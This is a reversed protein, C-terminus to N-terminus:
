GEDPLTEDIPVFDTIVTITPKRGRVARAKMQTAVYRRRAKTEPVKYNDGKQLIPRTEPMSGFAEAGAVQCPFWHGQGEDDVLYFEPYSHDTVWVMRAPIKAARCLAIFLSTMAECDGKGDRLTAVAGKLESEEYEVQERVYDYIARVQEWATEKDAVIKRALTRIKANTSEIFPSSALFKRIARPPRKPVTFVSPDAPEVIANRSIEVTLIAESEEGAELRPISVLLQKVGNDLVRFDTKKVAASFNEDVIKVRQEPWDMPVPVTAFIGTCPGGAKIKIGVMLRQVQDRGLSIGKGNDPLVEQAHLASLDLFTCSILLLTLYTTRVITNGPQRTM